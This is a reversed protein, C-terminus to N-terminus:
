FGATHDAGEVSQKMNFNLTPTGSCSEENSSMESTACQYL